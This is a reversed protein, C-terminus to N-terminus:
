PERPGAAGDPPCDASPTPEIAMTVPQPMDRPPPLILGQMATMVAADRKDNGSSGLLKFRAIQGAPDIWYQLAIHYTGPRTQASTCLAKMISAQLLGYYPLYARDAQRKSLADADPPKAVSITGVAIIRVTLGSGGLLIQLAAPPEFAGKVATSRHGNTLANDYFIQLGSVAGFAELAQDLPQAPIDFAISGTAPTRLSQALAAPSLCSQLCVAM